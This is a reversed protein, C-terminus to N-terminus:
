VCAGVTASASRSASPAIGPTWSKRASRARLCPPSGDRWTCNWCSPRALPKMSLPPVVFSIKRRVKMSAKAAASSTASAAARRSRRVGGTGPPAPEAPPAPAGATTKLEASTNRGAAGPPATARGARPERRSRIARAAAKAARAPSQGRVPRTRGQSTAANMTTIQSTGKLSILSATESGMSRFNSRSTSGTSAPTHASTSAAPPRSRGRIRMVQIWTATAATTKMAQRLRTIAAWESASVSSNSVATLFSM